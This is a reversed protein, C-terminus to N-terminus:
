EQDQKWKAKEWEDAICCWAWIIFLSCVALMAFLGAAAWPAHELAIM